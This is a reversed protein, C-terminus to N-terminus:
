NIDYALPILYAGLGLHSSTHLPTGVNGNSLSIQIPKTTKRYTNIKGCSYNRWEGDGLHFDFTVTDTQDTCRNSISQNVYYQHFTTHNLTCVM